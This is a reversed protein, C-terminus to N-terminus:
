HNWQYLLFRKRCELDNIKLSSVDEFKFMSIGKDEGLNGICKFTFHAENIQEIFGRYIIDQNIQICILFNKENVYPTIALNQWDDELLDEFFRSKFEPELLKDQNKILYEISNTYEDNFDIREIQSIEELGVGDLQGYETYNQLQVIDDNYDIVIGCLFGTDDYLRVGIVKKNIKSKELLENLM